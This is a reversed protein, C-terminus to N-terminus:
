DVEPASETWLHLFRSVADDWCAPTGRILADALALRAQNKPHHFTLDPAEPLQDVLRVARGPDLVASAALIAALDSPDSALARDAEPDFFVRAVGRDYRALLLALVADTRGESGPRPTHLSAARWFLEPVLKPDVREAVPLLAAAVTAPDHSAGTSPPGDAALRALRDFAELLWTTAAPKDRTSVALAMMGLAYPPLCPDDGRSRAILQRALAADVPALAHCLGPLARALSRPDRLSELLPPVRAPERGALKRAIGLRVRDFAGPDLIDETFALATAPDSRALAEAFEVRAQGGAVTSRLSEVAPRAEEFLQKARALDGHDILRDAVRALGVARRTPESIARADRLAQEVCERRLARASEPLDDHADLAALARWEADRIAGIIAMRGGTDPGSLGRSAAHRLHDAFWADEVGRSDVLALVRRPDVRALLELTRIRSAHDGESLVRDAYPALVTRALERDGPTKLPGTMSGEPSEDVATLTLDFPGRPSDIPRGLFRFGEAEAFLLSRRGPVGALRFRGELDTTAKRRFPGDSSARIIAGPVPRGKRDVVRGELTVLGPEVPMSLDPFTSSGPGTPRFPRSRAALHGDLSALALYDRGVRLRRPILYRGDLDTKLGESGDFRVPVSGLISGAPSRDVAWIRVSAGAVGRGDRDVVRGGLALADPEVVVLEVAKAEAPRAKVVDDTSSEGKSAALSVEADPAVPGAVFSGDAGSTALVSRPARIRGDFMTWSAEVRAGEVPRNFEDVVRGRVDSGRTLAVRPLEFRAIAPPVEVPRPGVFPPPCLYPAPVKLVRHGVLGSPVYAEYRGRDDTRVRVPESPGSPIVSVVAGAIPRGDQEDVVLGAVKVGRRLPIEVEVGKGAELTRRAVRAPLDPQGERPRVRVLVSGGAISEVEFRGAADTSVEAMASIPGRRGAGSSTVRVTLGAVAQPDDAVVRGSVKGAPLLTISKTGVDAMGEPTRFERAQAGFGAAEVLVELVEEPRFARLVARGEGDTTASALSAVAEPMRQVERAVRHPIVRAGPIPRGDPGAVEFSAGPSHDLVLRYARGSAADRDIPSSSAVSGPRIAWLTPRDCDNPDDRLELAFKGGEDATARGMVVPSEGDWGEVAVVLVAGPAPKGDTGVVEGRLTPGKPGGEGAGVAALSFVFAILSLAM